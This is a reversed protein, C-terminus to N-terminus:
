ATETKEIILPADGTNVFRFTCERSSQQEMKGLHQETQVFDIHPAALAPAPAGAIVAAAVFLGGACAFFFLRARRM